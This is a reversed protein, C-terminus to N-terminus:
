KENQRVIAIVKERTDGSFNGFTNAGKRNYYVKDINYKHKGTRDSYTGRVWLFLWDYPVSNDIRFSYRQSEGKSLNDGRNLLVPVRGKYLHYTPSNQVVASIKLNYCCSAGDSSVFCIRYHNINDELKLFDIGQSEGDSGVQLVPQDTLNALKQNARDLSDGYKGLTQTIITVTTDNGREFEKRMELISTQYDKRLTDDRKAEQVARQNEKQEDIKTQLWYQIIPLLVLLITCSIFVCGHSTLKIRTTKQSDWIVDKAAISAAVGSMLAFLSIILLLM